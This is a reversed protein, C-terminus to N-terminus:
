GDAILQKDFTRRPLRMELADYFRIFHPTISSGSRFLRREALVARV